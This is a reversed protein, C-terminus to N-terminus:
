SGPAVLILWSFRMLSMSALARARAFVWSSAGAAPAHASPLSGWVTYAHKASAWRPVRSKDAPVLLNGPMLTEAGAPASVGTHAMRRPTDRWGKEHIHYGTHFVQMKDVGALRLVKYGHGEDMSQSPPIDGRASARRPGQSKIQRPLHIAGAAPNRGRRFSRFVQARWEARRTGGGRRM